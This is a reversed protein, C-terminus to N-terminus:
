DNESAEREDKMQGVRLRLKTRVEEPSFKMRAVAYLDACNNEKKTLAARLEANKAELTAIRDVDMGRAALSRAVEAPTYSLEGTEVQEAERRFDAGTITSV